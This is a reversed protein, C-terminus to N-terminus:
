KPTEAPAETQAPQSAETASPAAEGAPAQETEAAPEESVQEDTVEEPSTVKSPTVKRARTRSSSSSGYEAPAPQDYFLFELAQIGLLGLFIVLALIVAILTIKDSSAPSTALPGASVGFAIKPADLLSPAKAGVDSKVILKKRVTAQTEQASM